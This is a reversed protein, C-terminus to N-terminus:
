TISVLLLYNLIDAKKELDPPINKHKDKKSYYSFVKKKPNFKEITKNDHAISADTENRKFGRLAGM